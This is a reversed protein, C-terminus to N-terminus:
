TNNSKITGTKTVPSTKLSGSTYTMTFTEAAETTFDYLTPVGVNQTGISGAPFTLSGNQATYDTGAVATGNSTAYLVTIPQYYRYKLRAGFNITTGEARAATTVLLTPKDDNLIQVMATSNGLFPTATASGSPNSITFNFFEYDELATDGKVTVYVTTSPSGAPITATGSASLYDKGATANGGSTAYNVSIPAVSVNNTSITVPVLHTGSSGEVTDITSSSVSVTPTDDNLITITSSSPSGLTANTPSSLNLNFYENYEDAQSVTAAGFVTVPINKVTEGPAFTLTGSTAAYDGATPGFSVAGTPGTGNVTAYGVTVTGGFASSLTVPVMVTPNTGSGEAVSATAQISVSPIACSGNLNSTPLWPTATVGTSVGDGSGAGGPAGPGTSSGWWNCVASATGNGATRLGTGNGTIANRLVTASGNTADDRDFFITSQVDATNGGQVQVGVDNNSVANKTIVHNTGGVVIGFGDGTSGVPKRHYGSVSNNEIVIGTPQLVGSRRIVVIGGYDRADTAPVTRSVTNGSVTVSGTGTDTGDGTSSKIEIGYRGNDTVTNNAVLNAGGAIAGLVGIGSDGNNTVTNGTITAGTVSGDSLDLGVLGNQAFTSNTVTVNSKPGNIVWLGRGSSGGNQNNRSADVDDVTLGNIGSGVNAQVWIGHVRNDSANLHRITINSMVNGNTFIGYDYHQVTLKEITVNSTTGTIQLGALSGAPDIQARPGNLITGTRSQGQITVAKPITTVVGTNYTGDAVHVTGGATVTNIAKQVTLFPQGATGTGLSDSGTTAVYCDTSCTPDFDFNAQSGDIGIRLDDVNGVFGPWSGGSGAKLNVYPQTSNFGANPYAALLATWTCPSSQPCAKTGVVNGVTPNGSMWWKGTLPSWSQWTNQPVSGGVTNYPEYVVRGQWATTTDTKDYDVNFQLAVALNNGADVSSRYTSYSLSSIQSFRTAANSLNLAFLDSAGSGTVGLRVSGNGKPPTGPGNVFTIDGAANTSDDNSVWPTTPTPLLSVDPPTVVTNVTSAEFDFVTDNGGLGVTLADANGKFTPGTGVNLGIGYKIAATPMMGTLAAWTLQTGGAGAVPFVGPIAVTSWFKGAGGNYADWTQWANDALVGGNNSPEWVLTAYHPAAGTPDPDIEINLSPVANAASGAGRYTSYSLSTVSSIPTTYPGTCNPNNACIGYQYDYFARHQPNPVDLALSGSGAPPTGPGNVFGATGTDSGAPSTWNGGPAVSTQDVTVTTTSAGATAISGAVLGAISLVFAVFAALARNRGM